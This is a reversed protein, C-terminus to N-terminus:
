NPAGATTVNVQPQVAAGINAAPVSSGGKPGFPLVNVGYNLFKTVFFGIVADMNLKAGGAVTLYELADLVSVRQLLPVNIGVKQIMGGELNDLFTFIKDIGIYVVSTQVVGKTSTPKFHQLVKPAKVM